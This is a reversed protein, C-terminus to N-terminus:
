ASNSFMHYLPLGILDLLENFLSELVNTKIEDVPSDWFGRDDLFEKFLDFILIPSDCNVALSTQSPSSGENCEVAHFM